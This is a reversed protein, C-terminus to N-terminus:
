AGAGNVGLFHSFLLTKTRAYCDNQCSLILKQLEQTNSVPRVLYLRQATKYAYMSGIITPLEVSFNNAKDSPSCPMAAWFLNNKTVRVEVTNDSSYKIYAKDVTQNILHVSLSLLQKNTKPAVAGM